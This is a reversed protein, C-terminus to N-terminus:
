APFVIAQDRDLRAPRRHKLSHPDFGRLVPPALVM